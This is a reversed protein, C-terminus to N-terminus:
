AARPSRGGSAAASPRHGALRLFGRLGVLGILNGPAFFRKLSLSGNISGLFRTTAGPDAAIATFLAREAPTAGRLSSLGVTLDYVPKTEAERRRHYGALERDLRGGLDLGTAIASSLLDADRLAHGIGLGTIPDMVLGADGALAWGAGRPVRFENPLDNTARVAGVRSGRRVREGLTGSRDLGALLAGELDGRLGDFRALPAALYTLTLGDNTPWAACTEGAHSYMEGTTIPVGDWYAYMAMTGRPRARYVRAGAAQAVLSRHGDAGVVITAQETIESAAGKPRIRVGDVRNGTTSLATVVAGERVEAGAERAADVLVTDLVTRRPSILYDVGDVAPYRGAVIVGASDFRVTRVPPIGSALVRDLLGWARLRAVPPVQVQHTSLTDSPLRARDIALVRLDRRALQYAVGAGAIRAGVVIVDYAM